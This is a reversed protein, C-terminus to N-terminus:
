QHTKAKKLEKPERKQPVYDYSGGFWNSYFVKRKECVPVGIEEVVCVSVIGCTTPPPGM